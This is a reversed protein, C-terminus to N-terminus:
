GRRHLRASLEHWGAPHAVKPLPPDPWAWESGPFVLHMATIDCHYPPGEIRGEEVASARPRQMFMAWLAGGSRLWERLARAYGAWLFPHIACLCTQEFVADLPRDPRWSAVDAQVVEVQVGAQEARARTRDCAALVLDIATVNFGRRALEV